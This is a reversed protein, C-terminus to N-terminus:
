IMQPPAFPGEVACGCGYSPDFYCWGYGYDVECCDADNNENCGPPCVGDLEPKCEAQHHDDPGTPGTTPGPIPTVVVGGGPTLPAGSGDTETPVPAATQDDDADQRGGCAATAILVGGVTVAHAAHLARNRISSRKFM